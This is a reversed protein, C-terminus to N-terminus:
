IARKYNTLTQYKGTLRKKKKNRPNHRGPRRPEIYREFGEQLQVLIERPSDNLFLMVIKDKLAAWSINKNIKYQHKRTSNKRELYPQCQKEILSQLNSVLLGAAYDQQICIVRHGSFQEMQQQNKQKGYATEIAWRMGYLEKLDSLQYAEQDYLNTLLIELEGSSLVVKVMRIKLTTAENVIYGQRKLSVIAKYSPKLELTRSDDESEVFELVEKNFDTRCRIVFHRPVEQNEMLYMLAFSPFGRDFITLSDQALHEVRSNMISRESIKSPYIAGWVTLDNLIDHVQMIRAMPVDCYQNGRTGFYDVVDSKNILYATGGDIAQLLFGKWRKVHAGYHRYFS